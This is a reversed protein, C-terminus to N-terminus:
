FKLGYSISPLIPFVGIGKLTNRNTMLNYGYTYFVPNKRNYLNYFSFDWYKEWYKKKKSWTFGIDLRHYDLLRFANRGSIYDGSITPAYPNPEPNIIEYKSTSLTFPSGSQFVWNASFRWHQNFRYM